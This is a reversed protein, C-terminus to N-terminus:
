LRFLESDRECGALDGPSAESLTAARFSCGGGAHVLGVVVQAGARRADRAAHALSEGLPRVALGALNPRITTRPLDESTGGVIAITVGGAQMLAYPAFLPKDGDLVNASVIPFKAEKARARLAGRPDEGAATATAHPGVPGFDFEHNGLASAAYGLANMAAVVAAGEGLNSVLTGQFLDGGDLLVVAGPARRLNALYGAQWAAGGREVTVRKGGDLTLEAREAEVHGHRDTTEVFRLWRPEGARAAGGAMMLLPALRLLARM